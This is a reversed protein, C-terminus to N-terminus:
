NNAAKTPKPQAPTAVTQWSFECGRCTYVVSGEREIVRVRAGGCEPCKLQQATV